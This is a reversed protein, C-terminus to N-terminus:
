GIGHADDLIPQGCQYGLIWGVLHKVIRGVLVGSSCSAICITRGVTSRVTTSYHITTHICDEGCHMRAVEQPVLLLGTPGTIGFSAELPTRTDPRGVLSVLM